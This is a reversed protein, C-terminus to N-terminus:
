FPVDAVDMIHPEGWALDRNMIWRIGALMGAHECSGALLEEDSCQNISKGLINAPIKMAMTRDRSFTPADAYQPDHRLRQEYHLRWLIAHLEDHKVALLADCRLEIGGTLPFRFSEDQPDAQVSWRFVCFQGWLEHLRLRIHEPRYARLQETTILTERYRSVTGPSPTKIEHASVPIARRRADAVKLQVLNAQIAVGMACVEASARTRSPTTTQVPLEMIDDREQNNCGEM